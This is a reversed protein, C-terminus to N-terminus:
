LLFLFGLTLDTYTQGSANEMKVHPRYVRPRLPYNHNLLSMKLQDNLEPQKNDM